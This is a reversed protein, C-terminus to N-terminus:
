EDSGAPGGKGRFAMRVVYREELAVLMDHDEGLLNVYWDAAGKSFREAATALGCLKLYARRSMTEGVEDNVIDAITMCLQHAAHAAISPRLPSEQPQDQPM